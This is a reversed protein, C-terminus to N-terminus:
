LDLDLLADDYDAMFSLIFAARVQPNQSAAEIESPFAYGIKDCVQKLLGIVDGERGENNLRELKEFLNYVANESHNSCEWVRQVLAASFAGTLNSVSNMNVSGNQNQYRNVNNKEM